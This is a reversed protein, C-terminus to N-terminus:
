DAPLGSEIAVIEYEAARGDLTLTVREGVKRGMLALSFPARYNYIGREIDTDFPGLFTMTRTGGGSLDRLTVRSGVGVHESPVDHPVLTRALSIERNMQALRARLLDREELAFRYESNESLDGHSAAEGIRKANEHMTVNVLHDREEVKRQLGARTTWLVEADEWPPVKEVAATRWLEPHRERLLGLLRHHLTDGLGELRELEYRLTVARDASIEALCARVPECERLALAARMRLRFNKAREPPIQVTRGLLSLADLILTFLEAPAPLRLGAGNAPGKWLWYLTEAHDVPESLAVDIQAQVASLRGGGRALETLRDLQAAPAEPLLRVAIDPADQPRSATLVDLAAQWSREPLAAILEAPTQCSRLMQAAPGTPQDAAATAADAALAKIQEAALAAALADAPRRRELQHVANIVHAHFRQMLAPDPTQRSRRKERVYAEAAAVWKDPQRHAAFQTWADEEPSVGEACYRLRVPSRGEVIVHPSRKLLERARSWWKTWDRAAVYRPVLELKLQDQDITEGHAHILGIVLSLPDSDILEHLREPRLQRLVRFDNPDIRVYERALEAAPAARTRGERRLTILGNAWDLGVVEAVINESRSILADGTRLELCLDLLRLANWPPRGAELGATEWLAAFGPRDGYVRRYLGALRTRLETDNPDALLGVRAIRLAASPDAEADANELVMRAIQALRADPGSQEFREFPRVLDALLLRGNEIAEMCHLEFGDLDGATGFESLTEPM